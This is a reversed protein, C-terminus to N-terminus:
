KKGLEDKISKLKQELVVKKMKLHEKSMEHKACCEMKMNKEEEFHPCMECNGCCDQNVM